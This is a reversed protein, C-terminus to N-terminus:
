LYDSRHLAQPQTGPQPPMAFAILEIGMKWLQVLSQDNAPWILASENNDGAFLRPDTQRNHLIVFGGSTYSALIPNPMERYVTSFERGDRYDNHRADFSQCTRIIARYKALATLRDNLLTLVLRQDQGTSEHAIRIRFDDRSAVIAEKKDWGTAAGVVPRIKPAVAPAPTTPIKAEPEEIRKANTIHDDDSKRLTQILDAPGSVAAHRERELVRRIKEFIPELNGKPFGIHTLGHINSFQM